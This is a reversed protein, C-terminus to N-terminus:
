AGAGGRVQHHQRSRQNPAAPYLVRVFQPPASRGAGSRPPPCGAAPEPRGRDRPGPSHRARGDHCVERRVTLLQAPGPAILSFRALGWRAQRLGRLTLIGLPFPAQATLWRHAPRDLLGVTGGGRALASSVEIRSSRLIAARVGLRRRRGRCRGRRGRRGTHTIGQRQRHASWIRRPSGISAHPDFLLHEDAFRSCGPPRPAPGSRARGM